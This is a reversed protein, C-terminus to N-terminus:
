FGSPQMPTLQLGRHARDSEVPYLGLAPREREIAMQLADLAIEVHLSPRMCWGAIKGTFLDLVTALYLWGVGSPIYTLDAFGSRTRRRPRSTAASNTPRSRIATPGAGLGGRGGVPREHGSARGVRAQVDGALGPAYREDSM